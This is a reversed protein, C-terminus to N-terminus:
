SLDDLDALLQGVSRGMVPHVWGPWIQAMPELVFRRLHMRPHPLSLTPTDSVMGDVAILDIDIVRDVYGGTSDRHPAGDIARQVELLQRLVEEPAVDGVEVNLGVNLYENGSDYGWPPSVVPSSVVPEASFCSEIAAVAMGIVAHRDGINSGINIHVTAM